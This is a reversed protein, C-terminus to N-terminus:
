GEPAAPWDGRRLRDAWLLGVVSKADTIRGEEVWTVAETLPLAFVELHEGDDPRAGTQALGQALFLILREDSYGVCPHLTALERWQSAAYGTEEQLERRACALPEEGSDIKGAPLEIMAAGLPHRWQRELIVAGDDDVAVVVVAGPHRIYERTSRRGDALEVEDEKVVLLRGEFRIHSALTKETLDREPKAL